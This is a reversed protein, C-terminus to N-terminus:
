RWAASTAAPSSWPSSWTATPPSPWPGPPLELRAADHLVLDSPDYLCRLEREILQQMLTGGGGHALQIRGAPATPWATDGAGPPAVASVAPSPAPATALVASAEPDRTVGPVGSGAGKPQVQARGVQARRAKGRAVPRPEVM